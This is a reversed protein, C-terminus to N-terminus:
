KLKEILKKIEVLLENMTKLLSLDNYTYQNNNGISSQHVNSANIFAEPLIESVDKKFFEAIKVRVLIPVATKGNEYNSLTPQEIFVNKALDEQTVGAEIRWKKIIEGPTTEM